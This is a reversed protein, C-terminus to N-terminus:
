AVAEIAKMVEGRAGHHVMHGIGSIVYLASRTIDEHLRMSQSKANILQDDEGVVISVPMSLEGYRTQTEIANPIM